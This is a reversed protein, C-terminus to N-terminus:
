SDLERRARVLGTAAAMARCTYRPDPHLAPRM